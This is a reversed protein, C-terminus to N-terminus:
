PVRLRYFRTPYNTWQPDSFYSTGSTLTNTGVPSWNLNALNATAEVVIVLNSTGNITFRFQDSQVGVSAISPQTQPQWLVATVGTSSSFVDWGTTGPLYYAKVSHDRYFLDSGVSPANGQFYVRTLKSCAYFADNGISTVSAPITVNTLSSCYYFTYEEIRTLRNPITVSTLKSCNDFVYAEINTVSNPITVNTLNFCGDFANAHISLVGDPITVSTVITNADFSGSGLSTVTLGNNSSPITVVANTGTYHSLNLTGNYNTTYTFQAQVVDTSVNFIALGFAAITLRLSTKM